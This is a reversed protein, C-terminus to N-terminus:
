LLFKKKELKHSFFNKKFIKKLVIENLNTLNKRGGVPSKNIKNSIFLFKKKSITNKSM